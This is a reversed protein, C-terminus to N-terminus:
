ERLRCKVDLALRQEPSALLPGSGVDHGAGADITDDGATAEYTFNEVESYLIVGPAAGTLMDPEFTVSDATPDLFDRLTVTDSRLDIWRDRTSM